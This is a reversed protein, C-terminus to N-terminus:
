PQPSHRAPQGAPSGVGRDVEDRGVVAEGQVVEHRVVVFVVQRIPLPVAVTLAVIPRPVGPDLAWGIIWRDDGDPLQPAARHECGEHEGLAYRHKKATILQPPRLLAVVIGVALIILNAPKIPIQNLFVTM